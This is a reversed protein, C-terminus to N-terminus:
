PQTALVQVAGTNFIVVLQTKGAGNDVAYLRAENVAGSGPATMEALTMAGGGIDLETSPTLVSNLGVFGNSRKIFLPTSKFAGADTRSVIRFDSGVDSGSEATSDVRLIWRNVGVSQFIMDRSAVSGNFVIQASGTGDGFRALGGTGPVQIEGSEFSVIGDTHLKIQNTNGETYLVLERLTGTGNAETSIEYQTGTAEYKILMRERSAISAPTGIGYIALSVDDSGDGDFSMLELVSSLGSTQAQLALVSVRDTLLYNQTAPELLLDGSVTLKGSSGELLMQGNNFDVDVDGTGAVDGLSLVDQGAEDARIMEVAGAFVSVQDDTFAIKTDVDGAHIIDSPITLTGTGALTVNGSNDTSLVPDVAGDPSTLAHVGVWATGTWVYMLERDTDWWSAGLAEPPPSFAGREATTGTYFRLPHIAQSM